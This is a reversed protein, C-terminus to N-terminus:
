KKVVWVRLNANVEPCLRVAINYVGLKKIPEELVLVGKELAIGEEDLLKLIQTETVSGYIDDNEKVQATITLSIAELKGRIGLYKDKLRQAAKVKAQKLEKLKKYSSEESVLALGQSILYNRGYGDKVKVVEGEKGLKAVDTLLIVEM